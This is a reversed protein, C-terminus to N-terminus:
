HGGYSFLYTLNNDFWHVAKQGSGKRNMFYLAGRANGYGSLAMNVAQRTGDSVEVRYFSGNSVPSFQRPSFIVDTITDPFQDDKVRNLVVNAVMARGEVDNNGAESEVIRLLNDYDEESLRSLGALIRLAELNALYQQRPNLPVIEEEDEKPAEEAEDLAAVGNTTTQSEQVSEAPAQLEQSDEGSDEVVNEMGPCEVVALGNDLDDSMEEDGGDKQPAFETFAEVVNRGGGGYMATSFAVVGVVVAGSMLVASNRYMRKTIKFVFLQIGSCITKILSKLRPMVNEKMVYNTTDLANYFVILWKDINKFYIYDKKLM